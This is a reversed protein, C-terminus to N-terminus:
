ETQSIASLISTASDYSSRTATKSELIEKLSAKAEEIKNSKIDYLAKLQLASLRWPKNEKSLKDLISKAKEDIPQENNLQNSLYTIEALERLALDFHKHETIKLLIEQGQAFKNQKFLLAAKNLYALAAYQQHSHDIIKDFYTVAEDLKKDEFALIAQNFWKGLQLQLKEANNEKWVYVSVGCILLLATVTFIRVIKKIINNYKEERLDESVEDLLDTM